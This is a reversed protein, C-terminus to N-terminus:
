TYFQNFNEKFKEFDVLIFIPRSIQQKLLIEKLPTSQPLKIKCFSSKDSSINCFECKPGSYFWSDSKELNHYFYLDFFSEEKNIKSYESEIFSDDNLKKYFDTYYTDDLNGEEDHKVMDDM